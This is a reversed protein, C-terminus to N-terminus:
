YALHQQMHEKSTHMYQHAYGCLHLGQVYLIKRLFRYHWLALISVKSTIIDVLCLRFLQM